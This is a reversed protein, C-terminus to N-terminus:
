VMGELVQQDINEIARQRQWSLDRMAGLAARAEQAEREAKPDGMVRALELAAEVSAELAQQHDDFYAIKPSRLFGDLEDHITSNHEGFANRESTAVDREEVVKELQARIDSLQSEYSQETQSSHLELMAQLEQLTAELQGREEVVEGCLQGLSRLGSHASRKLREVWAELDAAVM